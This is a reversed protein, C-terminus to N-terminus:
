PSTVVVNDYEPMSSTRFGIQGSSLSSDTVTRLLTGNVFAKITSGSFVLRLTYWTGATYIYKGSAFQTFTGNVRKGLQWLKGNKLVLLYSNNIDRHRGTIGFFATSAPAKVDVSVSYDTWATSGASLELTASASTSTSQKVVHSGDQVVTWTGGSATWGSPISGVADSEFNGSLLTTSAPPTATPTPTSTPTSTPTATTSPTNTPTATATSTATPTNTPTATATSTAIPTSTTAPSASLPDIRFYDYALGFSSGTTNTGLIGASAGLIFFNALGPYATADVSGITVIGAQDDRNVRYQAIIRNTAPDLTLFLDLTSPGPLTLNVPAIAPNAVYTGNTEVAFVLGTAGTGNDTALVLKAYNDQDLGFFIGGSKGPEVVQGSLPDALRVAITVTQRADFGVQLADDQSNTSAQNTGATADLSLFGGAGGVHVRNAIFGTGNATLQYGPFGSNGFKGAPPDGPNWTQVWPLVTTTGNTPDFQYQDNVDLISDNDDDPDNLDSFHDGDNDAPVSASSCPDTNNDSEDQNTYGDGDSDTSRPDSGAPICSTPPATSIFSFVDNTDTAANGQHVAGGATYIVNDITAGDTGHRPTLEDAITTWIDTKPDYMQGQANVGAPTALPSGVQAEGGWIQIQNHLVGAAMAARPTPMPARAGWTNTAPDYVENVATVSDITVATRGGIAYLKGGVERFILHDRATPMPAKTAWVNGAPNYAFLDNKDPYGLGGVLYITGAYVAVSAAGRPQPLDAVQAWTNTAIDYAYVAKVAVGAKILGGILYVTGNLCAAGPHDVATGPYPALAAWTKASPDYAWATNTDIVGLSNTGVIGGLVYVKGNCAVSGTEQTAAPLPTQNDWIGTEKVSPNPEMVQIDNAGYEAVYIAGDPSVAVDLPQNFIALDEEFLVSTGDDALVVRRVSQNGAYTASIINHLMQGGFTPATYETMGDSSTGNSYYLLRNAPNYNADPPKPTPYMTGDDLICQGRVPDPNGGHDGQHVIALYDSRTGPDFSYGNPCGDGPGPTNGATFNGANVNIYFNGNSHWLFDYANRYGSAYLDFIGPKLGASSTVNRVDIPFSGAPARNVNFRLVAATLYREPLGSFANSPAGYNTDSGVTMYLWGDPGFHVANPAHNERSRPLGTVYDKRNAPDDFNPGVLRTLMGSDVNVACTDPTQNFCFRPDSHVVWLIPRDPTSAPDFDIGILHRGVVALVLTGDTNTNPTDHITNIRQVSTVNRSSDLTLIHIYGGKGFSDQQGLYLKGDPGFQITTPHKLLSAGTTAANVIVRRNFAIPVSSSGVNLKRFRWTQTWANGYYDNAGFSLTHSGLALANFTEVPMTFQGQFTTGALNSFLPQPNQDDIRWYGDNLGGSDAISLTLAPPATYTTNEPEPIATFTPSDLDANSGAPYVDIAQVVANDFVKTFDINLMGDSVTTTFSKSILAAKGAQAYIDFSSLVPTGEIAVNFRRVGPSAFFLEAFHLRVIYSGNAAPIAYSFAGAHENIYLQDDTTNWIPQAEESSVGGTVYADPDWFNNFSDAYGAGGTNIRVVGGEARRAWTFKASANGYGEFYEMVVVHNGESLPVDVEYYTQSQPIWHDIKLVGDIYLRVGDDTSTAFKYTGASFMLTRTWRVSFNDSPFGFAPAGTGWDFDIATDGRTMIPQNTLNPNGFYEGKWTGPLFDTQITNYSLHALADGYGEFYEMVVTHEGAALAVDAQWETPAQGVFHDIQLVGDIYLRVGDDTYTDFRYNGADFSITRSWRVSFQDTSISPDPSGSGWDFDIAADERTLIPTGALTANAFYEAHWTSTAAASVAALVQKPALPHASPTPTGKTKPKKASRPTVTPTTARDVTSTSAMPSSLATPIGLGILLTTIAILGVLRYRARLRRLVQRTRVKNNTPDIM